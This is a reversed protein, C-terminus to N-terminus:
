MLILIKQVFMEPSWGAIERTFTKYIVVDLGMSELIATKGKPSLLLQPCKDPKIVKFPHPEFIFAGATGQDSAAQAVAREILKKHGLHVGDFNGLVLYFTASTVRYDDIENIIIMRHGNGKSSLYM